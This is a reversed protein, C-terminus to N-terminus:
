SPSPSSGQLGLLRLASPTADTTDTAYDAPIAPEASNRVAHVDPTMIEVGAEAFQDLVSERLASRTGVALKPNDTWALLKYQVAFDGLSDQIVTPEPDDLVHEAARAANKMLEHVQRWDVDYGIGATVQLVLGESNRAASYNVVRNGLAVTNPLTIEENYITRLRTVFLGRSVVDGITGGIEVRDGLKFSRSYTLTVGSIVNSVSGSAGLTFLAGAFVSFGKFLESGAGPLFPYIIMVTALIVVVKMLRATQDAWEPDFGRITIAGKSAAAMIYSILRLFYRAAVVIIILSVLKPLYGLVALGFQRAPDLVVPMVQDALPRTAPIFNLVLPVYLYFLGIILVFRAIRLGVGAFQRVSVLVTGPVRVGERPQKLRNLWAVGAKFARNLVTLSLILVVTAIVAYSSGILWDFLVQRQATSGESRAALDALRFRWILTVALLSILIAGFTGAQRAIERHTEPKEGRLVFPLVLARLGFILLVAILPLILIDVVWRIPGPENIWQLLTDM